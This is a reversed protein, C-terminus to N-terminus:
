PNAINDQVQVQWVLGTTFEGDELPTFPPLVELGAFRVLLVSNRTRTASNQKMLAALSWMIARMTYYADELGVATQANSGLYGIVLPVIGRRFETTVMGGFDGPRAVFLWLAPTTQGEPVVRRAVKGDATENEIAAIDPPDTDATDIASATRMADIQANVGNTGDNLWEAVLRITELMM